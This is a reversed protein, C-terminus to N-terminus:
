RMATVKRSPVRVWASRFGFYGLEEHLLFEVLFDTLTPANTAIPKPRNRRALRDFFCHACGCYIAPRQYTQGVEFERFFEGEKEIADVDRPGNLELHVSFV